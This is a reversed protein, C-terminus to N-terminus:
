VSPFQHVKVQYLPFQQVKFYRLQAETEIVKAFIEIFKYPDSNVKSIEVTSSFENFVGQIYNHRGAINVLNSYDVHDVWYFGTPIKCSKLLFFM